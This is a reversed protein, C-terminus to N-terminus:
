SGQPRHTPLRIGPCINKEWRSVAQPTVDLVQALEEQTRGDRRRFERMCEGLQIQM